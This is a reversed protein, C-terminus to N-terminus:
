RVLRLPREPARVMARLQFPGAVPARGPDVLRIETTKRTVRGVVFTKRAESTM